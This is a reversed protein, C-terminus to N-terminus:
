IFEKILISGQPALRANGTIVLALILIIAKGSIAKKKYNRLQQM